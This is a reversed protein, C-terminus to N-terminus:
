SMYKSHWHQFVIMAWLQAAADGPQASHVQQVLQQCIDNSFIGQEKIRDPHLWENKIRANLETRFWNLLPVEFGKKPRTYLESPLLHKFSDKLIKKQHHDDIKYHSPLSFAFDILEYDLFPSRIELSNAMSMSDVKYLMDSLLVLRVDSHLIENFDNSSPQISQLLASKRKNFEENLSHSKILAASQQESAITAWQWYREPASLSQGKAFRKLQRLKNGMPGNRSGKFPSLLASLMPISKMWWKNQRLLFEARHKNYGAFVEDAGDGSLAVTAHKRVNKSLLYVPLASSDAFPEDLYNLIEDLHQLLDDSRLKFVHHNSKIKDAVLEAYHTEDFHPEDAYGISFTNLTSVKKAALASVISSDIGGSLFTCLPVDSVLRREVAADLLQYLTKSATEYDPAQTYNKQLTLHYFADTAVCEINNESLRYKEWHGTKLKRVSQFISYPQPIYNLTFYQQLAIPDITRDAGLAIMTKMESAFILKHKQYQILLPKVGFRDRALFISKEEKDYICLAFFGNMRKLCDHGELKYLHLIVETDSETHFSIGLASLRKKEERYNFFEGNYIIVYRGSDDIMPQNAGTSTDIVSLRSHFLQVQNEHFLGEHDPGRQAMCKFVSKELRENKEIPAFSIQGAIGCM